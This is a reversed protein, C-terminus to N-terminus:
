LAWRLRGEARAALEEEPTRGNLRARSDNATWSYVGRTMVSTADKELASYVEVRAREVEEEGPDARHATEVLQAALRLEGEALLDRARAALVRAGGALAALERAAADKPAPRLAAPDQDYWGGYLRWVNRVVFEPEDYSPRLYPRELLEAPAKVTHVIEDLSAGANMMELTRDHLTLLAQATDLLARRVRDAGAIPMGHGPLLVEADLGAMWRLGQAWELPHRQVKQPNGANPFAWIFMDGCALVRQRPLWAVTADDTEGKVHRLRLETGGHRLTMADRYTVDPYRYDAPWTLGPLQFQRRNIVANYGRTLRYRDFRPGVGEQAIVTLRRETEFPGTGMTHDIHGHSYVATTVPETFRDGLATALLQATRASGTDFLLLEGGDRVVHVNGFSPWMFVGDAM